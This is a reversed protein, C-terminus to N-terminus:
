GRVEFKVFDPYESALFDFGVCVTQFILATVSRYRARPVAHLRASGKDAERAEIRIAGRAELLTLNCLLTQTLASVAACILDKGEEASEAHGEVTVLSHEPRYIIHIM